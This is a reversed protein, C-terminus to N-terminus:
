NTSQPFELIRKPTLDEVQPRSINAEKGRRHAYNGVEAETVERYLLIYKKGDPMSLIFKLRIKDARKELWNHIISAIYVSFSEKCMQLFKDKM